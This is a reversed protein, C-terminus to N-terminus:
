LGASGARLHARYYGTLSRGALIPQNIRKCERFLQMVEVIRAVMIHRQRVFELNRYASARIVAHLRIQIIQPNDSLTLRLNIQGLTLAALDTLNFIAARDFDRLERVPLNPNRLLAAVM